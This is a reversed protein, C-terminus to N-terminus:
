LHGSISYTVTEHVSSSPCTKTVSLLITSDEGYSGSGQSFNCSTQGSAPTCTYTGKDCEAKLTYCEGHTTGSLSLTMAINNQCLLGGTANISFYDPAAGAALIFSPVAPIEHVRRDSLIKGAITTGDLSSDSCSHGGLDTAGVSSHNGFPNDKTECGDGADGNVDYNEGSCSFTCSPTGGDSGCGVNAASADLGPCRNGCSGCNEATTTAGCASGGEDDDGGEGNDGGDTGYNHGGEASGGDPSGTGDGDGDDVGAAGSASCAAAAVSLAGISLLVLFSSTKM